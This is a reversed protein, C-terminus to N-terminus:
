RHGQERARGDLCVQVVYLHPLSLLRTSRQALGNTTAPHVCTLNTVTYEHGCYVKTKGALGALKTNLAEHMQAPTGSNFNGCGGIFLTDGTFVGDPSGDGPHAVYCVHGPTHCPTFLVSNYTYHHCTIQYKQPQDPAPSHPKSTDVYSIIVDGLTIKSDDDVEDTVADANDGKGGYIQM